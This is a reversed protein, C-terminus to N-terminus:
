VCERVWNVGWFEHVPLAGRYDRACTCASVRVYACACVCMRARVLPGHWWPLREILHAHVDNVSVSLYPCVCACMPVCVLDCVCPSLCMFPCLCVCISVSLCQWVFVCVNERETERETECVCVCVCECLREREKEREREWVCLRERACVCVTERERECVYSCRSSLRNSPLLVFRWVCAYVCVRVRCCCQWHGERCNGSHFRKSALLCAVWTIWDSVVTNRVQLM